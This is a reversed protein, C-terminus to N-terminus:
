VRQSVPWAVVTALRWMKASIFYDDDTLTFRHLKRWVINSDSSGLLEQIIIEGRQV